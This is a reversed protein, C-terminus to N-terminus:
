AGKRESKLLPFVERLRNSRLHLGGWALIGIYVPFLATSFLPAHIRLQTAVAGGLYGTLLVAGLISTGPVMYMVLCVLELVGLIVALDVPYGLQNFSDVVPQVVMLHIVSDFIMFIIAIGGLVRGTWLGAKSTPSSQTLSEM